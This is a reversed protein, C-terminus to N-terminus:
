VVNNYKIVINVKTSEYEYRAISSFPYSTSLSNLILSGGSGHDGGIGMEVLKIIFSIGKFHLVHLVLAPKTFSM